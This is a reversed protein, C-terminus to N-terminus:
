KAFPDVPMALDMMLLRFDPRDRLPDLATENRYTAPNRYGMEAARRLLALAKAAEADAEDASVGSGPRGAAWSLSAHCCADFFTYDPGLAGVGELLADARRSDAAAGAANGEDRRALGSRLLSEGLGLRYDTTEPHDKVLAGRLGVARECLAQAEAPRGLRLLATATNTQCNALLDRYDPVSPNEQVLRTRIAEERSFEAVAEAARGNQALTWGINTHSGALRERFDTVAPNDDALKQQIALARRHSELAEGPKGTRAQVVGISKHAAALSSRFDTVAPNDDALKQRIALARRYSELAEVPKGADRQLIGINNYSDALRSRFDTAAPNDDALKQRIAQARRYSEMATSPKGTQMQLIGIRNHSNALESRFDTVTPNDDALRKLTEVSRQYASMAAATKGTSALVFGISRYVTGLLAHCGDAGPGSVPLGELLDRAEEFRALGEASNGTDSLLAAAAHLSKAVNGRAEADAAPESALERRVALGKRHAALAASKDGIKSTLEGLEFYANGMAGRSGRGPQDQLLGELKGYFDLAGRLLKDRLPKFQDAKLVLDDGVEGHFLKIAEMALDFRQKERANASKLDANAKTVHDNAFKLDLNASKLETNARTQVALVAGTGVLAVLVAAALSTVATRNRRAWRRSRRSWPERWATVPEDAMWRELDDALAKPTAYRDEPKTAMAKLCISEVAKDLSPDLQSPRQFQGEQVARLIVGIDDNQFPPKGTLLCYLTAGLSYVDSRPGLRDLDGRAQEPSMYAPTGLASGPLTESSGSKSPAITQEGISPDARGIVKALGWDVVLTEGHKGVIINAPKLDRHIVGRSHAYDIANCVDLFRRLLRRLELSHVGPGKRSTHFREIADKLSDGKIFRMAYYPRGDSQVGLGYVPVVGPHELGGTIEAEAVFRQRSFPDDAHKELIQKLAVERNLETDLAVFVAGLGGRAHPRLIRFRQGDSTATGVAYSATRDDDPDTVEGDKARTIRALTADIEPEGLDALSARASRSSPVAALSQEVDGGHAELHVEALGELLARRASTLDGRAELHDALSRSKDLTWAQFAAVLQVQSILGNQLALLGFLLHRDAATMAPRELETLPNTSKKKLESFEIRKSL